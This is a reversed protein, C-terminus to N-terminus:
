DYTITIDFSGNFVGAVPTLIGTMTAGVLLTVTGPVTTEPMGASCDGDTDGDYSCIFAGLTYGTNGFINDVLITIARGTAATIDMNAANKPGGVVNLDSDTFSSDTNITVTETPLMNVDILGFRLPAQEFIIIPGVFEVEAVVPEPTSPYATSDFNIWIRRSRVVARFRM